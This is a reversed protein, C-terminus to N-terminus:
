RFWFQRAKSLTQNSPKWEFNNNNDTPINLAGRNMEM